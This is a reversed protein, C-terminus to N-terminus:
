ALVPPNHRGMGELESCLVWTSGADQGAAQWDEFRLLAGQWEFSRSHADARYANRDFRNSWSFVPDDTNTVVGVYGSRVITNDHAWLDDLAWEGYRPEAPTGSRDQHFGVIASRNGSVVNDHVEVSPSTNVLIGAGRVRGREGFGNGEVVNLRVVTQYSVEVKIGAGSNEVVLNGEYVTGTNNIDTWLGVGHNDHVHNGRVQLGRTLVFKTGGEAGPNCRCTNNFAIENWAILVGDGSGNIGYQGNHHIRNSVVEWGPGVRIGSAQNHQVENGEVTWGTAGPSWAIAGDRYPTAYNQIILGRITVRSAGSKFAHQAVGGGDLVAGQEGVFVNGEKPQVSQGLHRGSGIVFTTAGPHSDVLAQIGEGPEIHVATGPPDPRPEPVSTTPHDGVAGCPRSSEGARPITGGVFMLGALLSAWGVLRLLRGVRSAGPEGSSRDPASGAAM